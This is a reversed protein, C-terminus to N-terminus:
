SILKFLSSLLKESRTPLTSTAASGLTILLKPTIPVTANIVTEPPIKTCLM